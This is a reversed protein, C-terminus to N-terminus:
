SLNIRDTQRQISLASFTLDTGSLTARQGSFLEWRSVIVDCYKTGSLFGVKKMSKGVPDVYCWDNKQCPDTM